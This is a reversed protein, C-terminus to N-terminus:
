KNLLNSCGVARSNFIISPNMFPHIFSSESSIHWERQRDRLRAQRERHTRVM